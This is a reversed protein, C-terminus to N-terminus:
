AANACGVKAPRLPAKYTTSTKSPNLTELTSSPKLVDKPSTKSTNTEPSLLLETNAADTDITSANTADSDIVLMPEKTPFTDSFILERSKAGAKLVWNANCASFILRKSVGSPKAQILISLM